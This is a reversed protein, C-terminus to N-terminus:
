LPVTVLATHREIAAFDADQHLVEAGTRIAVAAILCDPLRRVTEGGHRCTRYLAAAAEYDPPEELRLYTCRNLLRRLDRAQRENRAGALVELLVTGMTALSEGADVATRLRLHAPSGTMRQYEIWVSSDVLIV